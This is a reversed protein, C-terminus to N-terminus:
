HSNEHKGRQRLEFYGMLCLLVFSVVSVVDALLHLPTESFSLVVSHAGSPILLQMVGMENYYSIPVSGGDVTAQWGPFYIKNITVTEQKDNSHNFVIKKNSSALNSINGTSEVLKQPLSTPAKKVWLPLYENHTTTTDLNTTYYTEAKDTYAKPFLYSVSLILLGLFIVAFLTKLRKQLYYMLFSVIFGTIPVLLSLLRYPFQIFSSPLIRWLGSSLPTTLYITFVGIILFILIINHHHPEITEHLLKRAQESFLIIGILFLLVFSIAGILGFNAFYKSWDSIPTQNFRTLHLDFIAPLWFFMSLGIGIEFVGRFSSERATKDYTCLTMYIFLFPLFLIALTNHSLLLLGLSGAALFRKRTELAYLVIPVIGLALLEGVSGRTYITFLHYPLYLSVLSGIVAAVPNFLKKLWLFTFLASSLFSLGIIIKITSIFNFGVLHIPEALYLFLPYLFNAVPYGYEQNLRGLFRVPIEGDRFAEHFASSRIIMWDGDDSQFFGSHFLPFLAGLSFILLVIFSILATKNQKLYSM